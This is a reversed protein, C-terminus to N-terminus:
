DQDLRKAKPRRMLSTVAEALAEVDPFDPEKEWWRMAAFAEAETQARARRKTGYHDRWLKRIRPVDQAAMWVLPNIDARRESKARPPRGAGTPLPRNDVAIYRALFEIVSKPVINTNEPSRLEDLLPGFRRQRNQQLRMLKDWEARDADSTRVFGGPALLHDLEANLWALMRAQGKESDDEWDPLAPKQPLKGPKKVM